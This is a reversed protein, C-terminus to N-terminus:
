EGLSEVPKSEAGPVSDLQQIQGGRALFAEVDAQLKQRLKERSSPSRGDAAEFHVAAVSQDSGKDATVTDRTNENM